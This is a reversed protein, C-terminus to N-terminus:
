FHEGRTPLDCGGGYNLQHGRAVGGYETEVPGHRDDDPGIHPRGDGVRDETQREISLPLLQSPSETGAGHMIEEVEESGAEDERTLM